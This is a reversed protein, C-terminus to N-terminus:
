VEIFKDKFPPWDFFSNPLQVKMKFDPDYRKRIVRAALKYIELKDHYSSSECQFQNKHSYSTFEDKYGWYNTPTELFKGDKRIKFGKYKDKSDNPIILVIEYLM